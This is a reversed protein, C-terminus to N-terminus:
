NKDSSFITYHVNGYKRHSEFHPHEEFNYKADHEFILIGNENLLNQKLILEPITGFDDMDYPPDAYILDFKSKSTQIYRFVNAKLVTHNKIGLNQSTKKIFAVQKHSIEVSVLHKVERSLFEFSVSGIGAFLDLVELDEFNIKNNLLNFLGEKAFDTTPRATITHPVTFRRSKFKGGIIRM